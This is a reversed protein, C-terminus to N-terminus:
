PLLRAIASRSVHATDNVETQKLGAGNVAWIILPDRLDRLQAWATLLDRAVTQAM